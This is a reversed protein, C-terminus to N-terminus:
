SQYSVIKKLGHAAPEKRTKVFGNTELVDVTKSVAALSVGFRESLDSQNYEKRMKLFALISKELDSLNVFGCEPCKYKM